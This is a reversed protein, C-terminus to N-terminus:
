KGNILTQKKEILTVGGTPRNSETATTGESGPCRLEKVCNERRSPGPAEEAPEELRLQPRVDSLGDVESPLRFFLGASM